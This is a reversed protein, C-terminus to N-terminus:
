NKAPTSKVSVSSATIIATNRNELQHKQALAFINSLIFLVLMLESLYLTLRRILVKDNLLYLIILILMLIFTSVAIKAWGDVSTINVLSNYWSVFFMESKPVIRDITKARAMDLNFRIDADGPNLLLAREYNLIAHTYDKNRYYANGLNFYVNADDGQKLLKEYIQIAEDYEEHVYASDADSKTVASATLISASMITLFIIKLTAGQKKAKAAQEKMTIEIKSIVDAATNYVKEMNGQKDGPAFRAFECDNLSESFQSILAEDVGVNSFNDAINDKSLTEVPMNLKDGAYGWLARLVEDYFENTKGQQLLKYATKLKKTAVKNAKKGRMKAVNAAEIAKQRFIILLVVFLMFPVVLLMWYTASGFFHQNRKTLTANGLKIYRIDRNLMQLVEQETYGAGDEGKAVKLTYSESKLTKYTKTETDFYTFEVPPITYNGKHRPVFLFEYTMNGELGNEGLKTNDEVKPDYRDFDKPLDLNPQKILKLNGNGSIVVKMTIPEGSKPNDAVLSTSLNFKGVGGSFNKPKDPLPLVQIKVEPAAIVKNVESYGMGGNFFAEFPDISTDQQLITGNFTISPITLLGTVQPYMMYKSWVVANYTKGNYTERSFSKQQPLALEQTHFGKLDPMKGDLATLEVQTFVKYTLIIPEQEYVCQKSANVTIFLDNGRIKSGSPRVGTPRQKSSQSNASVKGSVNITISNSTVTKGGCVAHAAPITFTGNKNAMLVYTFTTSENSSTKGNVMQFSSSTSTSPGVLVEFASPVAGLRIDKVDHTAITYSLRFQEGVAVQSPASGQLSLGFAAVPLLFV